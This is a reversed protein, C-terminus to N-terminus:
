LVNVRRCQARRGLLVALMFLAGVGSSSCGLNKGQATGLSPVFVPNKACVKLNSQGDVCSEGDACDTNRACTAICRTTEGPLGTCATAGQCRTLAPDCDEGPQAIPLCLRLGNQALVCDSGPCEAASTCTARCTLPQGPFGSCGTNGLCLSLTTCAAGAMVQPRCLQAGNEAAICDGPTGCDADMACTTRCTLAEGAFGTCSTGQTCFTNAADCADGPNASPRQPLLCVSGVCSTGTMCTASCPRSCYKQPRQPDTACTRFQCQADSTCPDLEAACDPDLTPCAQMACVGNAVCDAPCDPDTLLNPCMGNCAGDAQCVCDVDPTACGSACMGDEFCTPGGEFDRIFQQVFSAAFLDVRTDLGDNCNLSSDYSHVGVVRKIGDREALFSPGGSDGNCIGTMSMDGLQVHKATLGRLPLTAVRRTGFDTQGPATIGFGAVTMMRGVDANTLARSRHPTPAVAAPMPLLAAGVDYSLRDSASWMPHIRTNMPDIRTWTPSTSAPAVAANQVYVDTLATLGPPGSAPDFCHAAALLTRSTVLTATCGFAQGTNFVMRMFYVSPLANSSDPTGGRLADTTTALQDPADVPACGFTM